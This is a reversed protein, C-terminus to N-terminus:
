DRANLSYTFSGGHVYCERMLPALFFGAAHVLFGIVFLGAFTHFFEDSVSKAQMFLSGIVAILTSAGIVTIVLAIKNAMLDGSLTVNEHKILEYLLTFFLTFYV